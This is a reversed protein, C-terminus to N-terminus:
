KVIKKGGVINLGRRMEDHRIGQIDYIHTSGTGLGTDILRINTVTGDSHMLRASKLVQGTTGSTGGAYTVKFWCRFGSM